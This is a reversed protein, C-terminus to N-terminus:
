RHICLEPEGARDLSIAVALIAAIQCVTETRVVTM